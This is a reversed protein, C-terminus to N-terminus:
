TGTSLEVVFSYELGERLYRQGGDSFEIVLVGSQLAEHVVKCRDLDFRDCVKPDSEAIFLRFYFVAFVRM